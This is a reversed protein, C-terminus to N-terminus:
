GGQFNTEQSLGAGACIPYGSVGCKGMIFNVTKEENSQMEVRALTITPPLKRFM